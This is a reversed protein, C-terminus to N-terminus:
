CFMCPNSNQDTSNHNQSYISAVATSITCYTITAVKVTILAASLPGHLFLYGYCERHVVYVKGIEKTSWRLGQAQCNHLSICGLMYELRISLAGHWLGFCHVKQPISYHPLTCCLLLICYFFLMYWVTNTYILSKSRIIINFGLMLSTSM